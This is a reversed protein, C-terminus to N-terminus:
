GAAVPDALVAAIVIPIRSTARRAAEIGVGGSVVIVDSKARVLDAAREPVRESQGGAWRYEIAITRGEIWGLERLGERFADLPETASKPDANGLFGIRPLPKGPQQAKAVLPAAFFGGALTGVFTRRHM